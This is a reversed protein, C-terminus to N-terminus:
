KIGTKRNGFTMVYGMEHLVETQEKLSPKKLGLREFDKDQKGSDWIFLFDELRGDYTDNQRVFHKVSTWQFMWHGGRGVGHSCKDSCLKKADEIPLLFLNGQNGGAFTVLYVLAWEDINIKPKQPKAENFLSLQTYEEKM